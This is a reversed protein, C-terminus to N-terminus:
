GRVREFVVIPRAFGQQGDIQWPIRIAVTFGSPKKPADIM